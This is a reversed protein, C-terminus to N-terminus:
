KVIEQADQPRSENFFLGEHRDTSDDIM